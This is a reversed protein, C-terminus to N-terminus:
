SNIIALSGVYTGTCHPANSTSFLSIHIFDNAFVLYRSNIPARVQKAFFAPWNPFSQRTGGWNQSSNANGSTMDRCFKRDTRDLNEKTKEWWWEHFCSLNISLFDSAQNSVSHSVFVERREEMWQNPADPVREAAGTVTNRAGYLFCWIAAMDYCYLFNHVMHKITLPLSVLRWWTPFPM